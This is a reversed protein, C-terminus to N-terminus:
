NFSVHFRCVKDIPALGTSGCISPIKDDSFTKNATFVEYSGRESLSVSLQSVSGSECGTRFVMDSRSSPSTGNLSVARRVTCSVAEHCAPKPPRQQASGAGEPKLFVRALAVRQLGVPYAWQGM